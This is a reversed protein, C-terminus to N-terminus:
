EEHIDSFFKLVGGLRTRWFEPVHDANGNGPETGTAAAVIGGAVPIGKTTLINIFNQTEAVSNGGFRNSLDNEGMELFFHLNIPDLVQILQMPNNAAIYSEDLQVNAALEAQSAGFHLPASGFVDIMAPLFNNKIQINDSSISGSAGLSAAAVFKDQHKLALKLSGYGGMSTGMLYRRNAETVLKDTGIEEEVLQLLEQIFHREYWGTVHNDLRGAPSAASGGPFSSETGIGEANRGAPPGLRDTYWSNDGDPMVIIMEDIKAIQTASERPFYHVISNVVDNIVPLDVPGAVTALQAQLLAHLEVVSQTEMSARAIFPLYVGARGIGFLWAHENGAGLNTIGLENFLDGIGASIPNRAFNAGHLAYIVPFKKGAVGYDPPYMIWYGQKLGGLVTSQFRKYVIYDPLPIFDNESIDSNLWNRSVKIKARQVDTPARVLLRTSSAEVVTATDNGFRVINDGLTASFNDGFIEIESGAQGGQPVFSTIHVCGSFMLVTFLLLPLRLYKRYININFIYM